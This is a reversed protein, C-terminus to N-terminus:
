RCWWPGAVASEPEGVEFSQRLFALLSRKLLRRWARLHEPHEDTFVRGYTTLESCHGGGRRYRDWSNPDSSSARAHSYTIVHTLTPV